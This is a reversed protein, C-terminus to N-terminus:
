IANLLFRVSRQFLFLCFFVAAEFLVVLIHIVNIRRLVSLKNLDWKRSIYGAWGDVFAFSLFPLLFIWYPYGFLIVLGLIGRSLVHGAIALLRELMPRWLVFGRANDKKIGDSITEIDELLLYAILLVEAFGVGLGFSLIGNLSLEDRNYIFYAFALGLEAIASLVGEAASILYINGSSIHVRPFIFGLFFPITKIGLALLWTAAGMILWKKDLAGTLSLGVPVGIGLVLFPLLQVLAFRHERFFKRDSAPIMTFGIDSISHIFGTFRLSRKLLKSGCYFVYVCLLDWM